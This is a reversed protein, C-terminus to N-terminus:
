QARSDARGRLRTAVAFPLYCLWCVAVTVGVLGLLYVPWPGLLDFLTAARPKACLYLYNTGLVVNLGAVLAAYVATVALTIGVSAMRPRFGYGAIAYWAAAIVLGHGLFFVVFIPDPFGLDLDPTLLAPLSAGMSWFYAVEFARYSRLALMWACLFTNVDCLDLPLAHTWAYGYLAVAFIPKALAVVILMGALPMALAHVDRRAALRGLAACLALILALTLLHVPGFLVFPAPGTM